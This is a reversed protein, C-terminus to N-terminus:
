AVKLKEQLVRHPKAQRSFKVVTTFPSSQGKPIQGAKRFEAYDNEISEVAHLSMIKLIRNGLNKRHTEHPTYLFEEIMEQEVVDSSHEIITNIFFRGIAANHSNAFGRRTSERVAEYDLYSLEVVEPQSGRVDIARNPIYNSLALVSLRFQDIKDTILPPPEMLNHADTHHRRRVTQLRTIRVVEGGPKLDESNFAKRPFWFHHDDPDKHYLKGHKTYVEPADKLPMLPLPFGTSEDLFWPMREASM